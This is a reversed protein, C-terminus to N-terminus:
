LELRETMFECACEYHWNTSRRTEYPILRCGLANIEKAKYFVHRPGKTSRTLDCFLSVYDKGGFFVVPDNSASDLMRFDRFRSADVKGRRKYKVASGLFTIDYHPLLFDAPILGWGASLIYLRRLGYKEKLDRYIAPSYLNWAPLLGLPNTGPNENYAILEERWTATSDALDDPHAYVLDGDHPAEVPRAVFSVKRGDRQRMSGARVNKSGACQIVINM